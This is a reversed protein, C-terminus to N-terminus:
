LNDVIYAVSVEIAISVHHESPSNQEQGATSCNATNHTQSPVSQVCLLELSVSLTDVILHLPM